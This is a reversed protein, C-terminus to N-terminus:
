NHVAVELGLPSWDYVFKAVDIPMNVCGHSMPTGFNSHWYTGHFAQDGNFYTVWPVDKTLYDAGKMDQIRVHARVTFNGVETRHGATGSSISWSRVVADNEYLTATQASLNVDIRRFLNTTEFPTETITMAFNGNGSELQAAFDAAFDSTDGITRGTAGETESRLVEGKSNVIKTANVAARDVIGPLTDVTAQIAAQDAEIRLEGGDDVISLWSAATAPDVPVTREEGVYFGVSGLMTNLSAALTNAVDDTVPAVAPTPDGSFELSRGGDAIAESLAVGLADVDIATGAEAPTVLYTNTAADFTVAADVPDDFSTPVADRLAADATAPDLTITGPLAAGWATVNWMPHTAFADDALASADISAGLDAGTLVVDDGAGTLTIETNALHADIAEAAAGPTMWGIPVGAVTTGPAVLFLSAAGAGIAVVGAGLGIWLGLRRKKPAPEIPAWALPPQGDAAGGQATTVSDDGITPTEVLKETTAGPASILDTM